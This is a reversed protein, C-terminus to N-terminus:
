PGHPTAKSSSCKSSSSVPPLSFKATHWWCLCGHQRAPHGQRVSSSFGATLFPTIPVPGTETHEPGSERNGDRKQRNLDRKQRNLGRKQRRGTETSRKGKESAKRGWGMEPAAWGAASLRHSAFDGDCCLQSKRLFASVREPSVVAASSRTSSLQHVSLGLRAQGVGRCVCCQRRHERPYM